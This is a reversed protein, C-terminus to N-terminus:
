FGSARPRHSGEPALTLTTIRLTAQSDEGKLASLNLKVRRVIPFGSLAIVLCQVQDKQFVAVAPELGAGHQYKHNGLQSQCFARAAWFRVKIWRAGLGDGIAQCENRRCRTGCQPEVEPGAVVQGPCRLQPKGRARKYIALRAPTHRIWLRSPQREARSPRFAKGTASLGRYSSTPTSKSPISRKRDPITPQMALYRLSLFCGPLIV